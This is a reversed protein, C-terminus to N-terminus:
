IFHMTEKYNLLLMIQIYINRIIFHMENIVERDDIYDTFRYDNMLDNIGGHPEENFVTRYIFKVCYELANRSHKMSHTPVAYVFQEAQSCSQYLSDFDSM